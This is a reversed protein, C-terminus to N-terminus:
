FKLNKLNNAHREILMLVNRNRPGDIATRAIWENVFQSEFMEIYTCHMRRGLLKTSRNM